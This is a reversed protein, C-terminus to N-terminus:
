INISISPISVPAKKGKKGRKSESLNVDSVLRDNNSTSDETNSAALNQSRIRNLIEQVNGPARIEPVGGPLIKDRSQNAAEPQMMTPNPM